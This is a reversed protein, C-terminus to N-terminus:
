SSGPQYTCCPEQELWDGTEALARARCGGCVAKYECRGCKGKLQNFDRLKEFVPSNRWIEALSTDSVSGCRVPLYGCPFVDGSHGVFAVSIGCLCGRSSRTSAEMGRQAAIRYYQPACTARLELRSSAQKDCVWELAREYRMPELQHTAGIQVGCGVPVLLFVHLACAGLDCALDYLEDLQHVNHGAITANIQFAQGLSQVAAIGALARDFAGVVGRFEDHTASDAGDLSIAVRRFGAKAIQKAVTSDILTGNTALATPLNLSAAYAALDPWDPRMLPEGGSFVIVPRGLTMVSDFFSKVQETSLDDPAQSDDVDLRRCHKCALNCRWTSEWFLMRLQNGPSTNM